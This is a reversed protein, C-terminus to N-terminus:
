AVMVGRITKHSHYNRVKFDQAKLKPIDAIDNIDPIEIQPPTYPINSIQTQAQELHSNYLHTDGLIMSFYRPTKSTLKAVVSLLLASSAINYPVGLFLDQSRNYCSMDLYEDQVYFQIIISHCPYLVGEAAQSPNYSTMLIRRSNPDKKILDIVRALQDIGGSPPLPKGNDDLIYPSNFHRWQYGYMPGMVGTAYPLGRDALFEKSTNGEWIRVRAESLSTSDTDGRLFFLFEELIGRLFMKKTTLLPFGVRLDFKMTNLFLSRTGGNRGERSVGLELVDKLMDLYQYETGPRLREPISLDLFEDTPDLVQYINGTTPSVKEETIIFGHLWAPDFYTDSEFKGKILTRYVRRVRGTKLATRYVEAGGAIIVMDKKEIEHLNNDDNLSHIFLIDNAWSTSDPSGRTLCLVRRKKLTPLSEATKRGVIITRNLTIDHFHRLDESCSWPIGGNYGIGHHSDMAVILEM